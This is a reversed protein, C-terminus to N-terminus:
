IDQKKGPPTNNMAYGGGFTAVRWKGTSQEIIQSWSGDPFCLLIIGRSYKNNLKEGFFCIEAGKQEAKDLWYKLPHHEFVHGVKPPEQKAKAPTSLVVSVLFGIIISAWILAVIGRLIKVM